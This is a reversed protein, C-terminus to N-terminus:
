ITAVSVRETLLSGPIVRKAGSVEMTARIESHRVEGQKFESVRLRLGSPNVGLVIRSNGTSLAEM